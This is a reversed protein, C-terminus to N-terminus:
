TNGVSRLLGHMLPYTLGIATIFAIPATCLNYLALFSWKRVV